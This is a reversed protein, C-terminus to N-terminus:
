KNSVKRDSQPCTADVLEEPTMGAPLDGNDKVYWIVLGEPFLDYEVQMASFEDIKACTDRIIIDPNALDRETYYVIEGEVRTNREIQSVLPEEDTAWMLTQEYVCIGLTMSCDHPSYTSVFGEAQYEVQQADSNFLAMVTSTGSGDSYNLDYRYVYFGKFEGAYMKTVTGYSAFYNEIQGVERDTIASQAHGIIPLSVGLTVAFLINLFQM